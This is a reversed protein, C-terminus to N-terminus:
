ERVLERHRWPAMRKELFKLLEMVAVSFIVIVMVGALYRSTAFLEADANIQYGIGQTSAIYEGVIVGIMARGVALRLGTIFFPTVSPLVVDRNLNWRNAGFSRAARLLVRDTNRVGETLNIMVPFTSLIVVIAVKSAIGLGFWIVLMPALVLVPTSYLASVIPDFAWYLRKSTGMVLGVPVAILVSIVMGLLFETGSVRLDSWLPGQALELGGSWIQSPYSFFLPNWGAVRGLGEWIALIAVVTAIPLLRQQHRVLWGSRQPQVPLTRGVQQIRQQQQTM